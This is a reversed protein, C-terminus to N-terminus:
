IAVVLILWGGTDWISLKVATDQDYQFELTGLDMGVWFCDLINTM